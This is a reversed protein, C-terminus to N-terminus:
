EKNRLEKRFMRGSWPMNEVSLEVAILQLVKNNDGVIYGNIPITYENGNYEVTATHICTESVDIGMGLLNKQQRQWVATAGMTIDASNKTM